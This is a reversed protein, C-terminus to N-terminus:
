KKGQMVDALVYSILRSTRNDLDYSPNVESVDMSVFNTLQVIHNSVHRVTEEDLGFPAPASVGPAIAQNMVDTCITYIVFDHEKAFTTIVDYTDEIPHVDTEKVYQVDYKKATDFLELTNGLEQIGICLYHAHKDRELIQRFMTGSSPVPDSRLDFHADLNIMGIKKDPGVHKRVGLYHGYFTEHGGGLIIPTYHKELLAAVSDGLREQAGELDKDECSLNGVDVFKKETPHYPLSSLQARIVNPADKAGLRGKNRRVGEHCEFGILSFAQTDTKELDDVKTTEVVQHFRKSEPTNDVRGNWEFTM